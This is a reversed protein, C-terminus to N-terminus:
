LILSADWFLLFGVELPQNKFLNLAVPMVKSIPSLVLSLFILSNLSAAARSIIFIKNSSFYAGLILCFGFFKLFFVDLGYCTPHKKKSFRFGVFRVHIFVSHMLIILVRECMFLVTGWEFWFDIYWFEKCAKKFVYLSIEEIIWNRSFGRM